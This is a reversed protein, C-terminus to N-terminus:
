DGTLRDCRDLPGSVEQSNRWRSLDLIVALQLIAMAAVGAVGTVTTVGAM